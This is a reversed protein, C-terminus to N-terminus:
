ERTRSPADDIPIVGPVVPGPGSPDDRDPPNGLKFLFTGAAVTGALGAAIYTVPNAFFSRGKLGNRRSIPSRPAMLTKVLAPIEFALLENKDSRSNMSVSNIAKKGAVDVLNLTIFTKRGDRSVSGGIVRSAGILSGVITLCQADSCSTASQDISLQELMDHLIARDFQQLTSDLSEGIRNSIARGASPSINEGCQLDMVAIPGQAGALSFFVVLFFFLAARHVVRCLSNVSDYM